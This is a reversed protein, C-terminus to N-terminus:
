RVSTGRANRRVIRQEDKRPRYFPRARRECDDACLCFIQREFERQVVAGRHRGAHFQRALFLDDDTRPDRLRPIGGGLAAIKFADALRNRNSCGANSNDDVSLRLLDERRRCSARSRM